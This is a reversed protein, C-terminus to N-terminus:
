EYSLTERVSMRTARFAPLLSAVAAIVMVAALWTIIALPSFIFVLPQKILIRGLMSNFALSFPISLPIAILWSLIGVTLGETIVIGAIAANSAGISRMVGIERTREMVNLSMMGALGLGGVLATMAAMSLLFAVLFDFQSANASVIVDRTISQAVGIGSKKLQSEIAKVMEFQSQRDKQEIRVYLSSALGDKGQITSLRDFSAYAARDFAMLMIGAIKWDYKQEGIELELTDGAKLDPMDEALLSSIVMVNRDKPELWRGSIMQPEIFKSDSALGIVPFTAGKSGDSKVRQVQVTTRGEVGVVGPVHSVVREARLKGYSDDLFIQAEFNFATQMIRDLEAMLSGRVNVVSIFLTGAIALTGLTLMLRGKRQFTGRLAFLIPRPLGRVRLLLRDIFGHQSKAIGYNSLAERVTIRVGGFIPLASAIVPVLLSAGAQLFFVHAPLHFSLININLFQTVAVTFLYAMVMGLPLAVLLALLGYCAVMVLYIGIIQGATGGIAKMMGIQRKQETLLASLTNVVLFGSLILSFVGIISLILTFSQTTEQAWHENPKRVQVSNVTVGARQLRGRLDDAVKEIKPITDYESKVSLELRNYSKPLGLWGLTDMSIYGSLQPFMSAPFVNLDHVTGVLTIEHQHGNSTEVTMTNGLSTGSLGLSTRELLVQGRGSPWDGKELVLRNLPLNPYDDFAYLDINLQQGQGGTVLKVTHVARVQADIVEPQRRAWRALGDDPSSASITITSANIERYQASMDKVLVEETVFVSGFAFVGVAISLVVMITRTKNCRLDRLVKHWRPSLM